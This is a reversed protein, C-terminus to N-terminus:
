VASLAAHAQSVPLQCYRRRLSYPRFWQEYTCSVVGQIPAVHSCYLAGNGMDQLQATLVGVMNDVDLIPIVCVRCKM